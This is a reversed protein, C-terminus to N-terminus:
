NMCVYMVNTEGGIFVLNFHSGFSVVLPSKSKFRSFM